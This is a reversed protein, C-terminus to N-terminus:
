HFFTQEYQYLPDSGNQMKRVVGGRDFHVHMMSNWIGAEKYRYSWVKYDRLPLSSYEAPRGITRLVDQKNAHDIQIAAFKAGTLVQEYSTLRDDPGIHAMWTFQGGPGTAYELEKGPPDPYVATPPGMKAVVTAATDGPSPAHRMLGACGGLVLAAAPITVLGIKEM